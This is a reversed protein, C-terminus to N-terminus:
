RDVAMQHNQAARAALEKTAFGDKMMKGLRLFRWKHVNGAWEVKYDTRVPAMNTTPVLEYFHKKVVNAFQPGCDVVHLVLEWENNEPRVTITDGPMFHMSIHTWFGSEMCQDPTVDPKVDVRHRTNKEDALGWRSLNVPEAKAPEPAAEVATAEPLDVPEGTVVDVPKDETKKAAAKDRREVAKVTANKAM